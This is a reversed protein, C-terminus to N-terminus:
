ARATTKVRSMAYLMLAAAATVAVALGLLVGSMPLVAAIAPFIRPLSVAAFVPMLALTAWTMIWKSANRYKDETLRGSFYSMWKNTNITIAGGLIGGLAMTLAPIHFLVASWVFAVASAAGLVTWSKMGMKKPLLTLTALLSLLWSGADYLGITTGAVGATPFVCLAFITALAGYVTYHMFRFFVIPLYEKFGLKGSESPQAAIAAPAAAAAEKRWPEAFKIAAYFFFASGSLASSIIM